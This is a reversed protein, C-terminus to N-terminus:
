IEPAQGEAGFRGKEQTTSVYRWGGHGVVVVFGPVKSTSCCGCDVAVETEDIGVEEVVDDACVDAVM